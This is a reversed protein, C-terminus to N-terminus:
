ELPAISMRDFERRVIMYCECAASELGPRDLIRIRGRRYEIFGARQLALAGVTVSPRAVGLMLALSEQTLPFTDGNVRDHTKLLWRALRSEVPHLRHCAASHARVNLLVQTYLHLRDLLARDLAVRAVFAEAPMRLFTGPILTVVQFPLSAAGLYVVWGVMGEYGVPNVEVASGDSLGAVVSLVGTEPFYVTRILEDPEILIRRIPLTIRKLQPRLAQLSAPPLGALFLNPTPSLGQIVPDIGGSAVATRAIVAGDSPGMVNVTVLREDPLARSAGAGREIIACGSAPGPEPRGLAAVDSRRPLPGPDLLETNGVTDAAHGVVYM